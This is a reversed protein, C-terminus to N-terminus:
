HNKPLPNNEKVMLEILGSIILLISSLLLLIAGKELGWELYVNGYDPLNLTDEGGIPHSSINKIIEKADKAAEIEGIQFALIQLSM